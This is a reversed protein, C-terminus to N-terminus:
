LGRPLSRRPRLARRSSARRAFDDYSASFVDYLHTLTGYKQDATKLQMRKTAVLKDFLAAHGSLYTDAIVNDYISRGAPYFLIPTPNVELVYAEGTTGDIRIDVRDWGGDNNM